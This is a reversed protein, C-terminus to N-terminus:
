AKIKNLTAIAITMATKVTVTDGTDMPFLSPVSTQDVILQFATKCEKVLGLLYRRDYKLYRRDAGTLHRVEVDEADRAIIDDLKSM